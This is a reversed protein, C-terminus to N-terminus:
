RIVTVFGTRTKTGSASEYYVVYFYTDNKVTVGNYKGDWGQTGEFLFIGNRNYVKIHWDKMFLDNIGDDNPSFTNTTSNNTIWVRKTAYESCGNPNIVKLKIDYHGAKDAAFTHYVDFNQDTSLSDGFDWYYHSYPIGESWIHLPTGDTTVEDRDTQITYNFSDYYTIAFHLTDLCGAITRGIVSYDGKQKIVLSDATSGDSWRYFNAGTAHFVTSDGICIKPEKDLSLIPRADVVFTKPFVMVCSNGTITLVMNYSGPKSFTHEPSKLVSSIGDGFDWLYTYNEQNNLVIANFSYNRNNCDSVQYDIGLNLISVNFSYNKSCGLADVVQFNVLGNQFTEMIENNSGTATGRSWTLQYPPVGGSVTATSTKISKQTTCNFGDQSVISIDLPLPRSITFQASQICKNADTVLVFYNGAPINVLDETTSGNSWAFSYPSTGGSVTLNIAGSNAGSCDTADSTSASLMLQQPETIVFSNNIFCPTGDSITVTYTGPALNSRLTAITPSDNWVVTVPAKGGLFNLNIIGDNAGHCSINKVVPSIIYIPAEPINVIVSKTCGLNDTVTITYNGAALNNQFTGSGANSWVIQYPANGGSITLNISANNNGYCTIPTTAVALVIEQSQTIIVALSKSCGSADTVVLNYTGAKLNTLNQNNSSFGNPGLWIYNYDFVGPSTQIKTGGYANISIAGTADGYCLINSQTILDVGLISPETITFSAIKQACSNVDSVTVEYLGPDLNSIDETTAYAVNNKKWSYNYPMTGGSITIGIEGNAAGFCSVNKQIDTNIAIALPEIITYSGSISCGAADTVSIQYVGALLGSINPTNATFGNPGNWLITYPSGSGFPTGGTINTKIEGNNAGFCTIKTVTPNITISPNVSVIVNFSAGNCTGSIPTVTYTATAIGASNNILTQSISNQPSAQATAGTISGVPNMVPYSWMYRTGTPVIDGTLNDPTVLFAVNSCVSSNKNTIVPKQNVTVSIPTSTLSTCGGSPLTIICYYYITGVIIVPPNYTSNTAGSIPTGGIIGNLTNSFWQYTPIGIGNKFSVSLVTPTEGECVSNSVPQNTFVLAPVVIVEATQSTVECGLGSGQTITCYYYSAITDATLPKYTAGTAGSILIGSTNNNVTNKYWQYYYVTLGGTAAVKLDTSISNQCLTQTALPELSITPDVLVNVTAVDSVASNCGSGNFTLVAYYYYTGVTLFVPPTFGPGTAGSILNGGINSNSNNSYWQYTPIGSGGTYGVSLPSQLTGGVCIDQLVTPQINIAPVETIIVNATNSTLSSCTGSPLSIICYYYLSGILTSTPTYSVNTAGPILTGGSTNDVNNVYWQYTPIGVVNQLTITMTTPTGGQCVKSSAPQGIINPPSVVIVEATNSIVDCGLGPTQTILCYYYTTGLSSTVPSYSAGTAGPLIVGSTTNNVISKYWQYYYQGVGGSATVKLDAPLSNLCVSQNVLPQVSVIPDSVVNVVAVNSIVTNCGGGSFTIIAYYYSTGVTTYVPPSYSTATANFIASGGTTSNVMNSYWQFSVTGTGGVYSFTLPTLLTGGVCINQTATPQVSILPVATVTVNATSSIINSCTATPFTVICYYYTTGVNTTPPDFNVATAGTIATGTGNNDVSNSYWQYLPSAGNSFSVSLKTATGGQCVISSVPQSTFIPLPNINVEYNAVIGSCNGFKPTIAYTVKGSFTNTTTITQVPLTTSNGSATFGSVGPTATASWTFGTGPNDATLTVLSTQEGSCITQSLVTNTLVPIPNVLFSKTSTVSVGCSNTINLTVVYNGPTNYTIAGPIELNSTAPLGGPFSWSYVLPSAPPACNTVVASPSIVASGCFEAIDNIVVTPPKQTVIVSKTTSQSGCSNSVTLQLTYTGPNVFQFSPNVSSSSTGNTYTFASTNGCFGSSYSVDWQYVPTNCSNAIITSNVVNVDVTTCGQNVILSFQPTIPPEVCIVKTKQDIGCKNGVKLTITYTGPSSFVPCIQDSGTSWTSQNSSGFDNGLSGSALTFGTAPTISWVVNPNLCGTPGAITGAPTTNTLCVQSSTCTVTTPLTFDVVPATSVYIPAVVVDSKGCPNEATITASYANAFTASTTGCSPKTFTHSVSAPPPHNYVETDSGDSYTVTYTTGSPNNRTGQIPFTLTTPNCIDTNAPTGLIVSPTAGVFVLYHKTSSGDSGDVKYDLNWLGVKYTHTTTTWSPQSFDPTGDGWTITYKTNTPITTSANTFTFLTTTNTCSEFVPLGNFTTGSGTGTITADPSAVAASNEFYNSINELKSTEIIDFNGVAGLATASVIISLLLIAFRLFYRMFGM